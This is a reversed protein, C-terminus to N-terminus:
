PGVISRADRPLARLAAARETGAALWEGSTAKDKAGHRGMRSNELVSTRQLALLNFIIRAAAQCVSGAHVGEVIVMKNSNRCAHGGELHLVQLM